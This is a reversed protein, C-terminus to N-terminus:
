QITLSVPQSWDDAGTRTVARYKFQVTSGPALGDITAKAQLTPPAAIWSKGGDTSYEWEYSARRAAVAATVMAEGSVRGPKAIFTRAHRTAKKRVAVGASEIISAANVGDTDAVSQIYSRVQQLVGVLVKRKDNRATAAGKTRALAATEAAQLDDIAATVTTLPPTPAPFSANATMRKVIGQAYVILAPASKPLALTVTVRHTSKTTTSM